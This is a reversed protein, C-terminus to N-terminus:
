RSLKVHTKFRFFLFLLDQKVTHTVNFNQLPAIHFFHLFIYIWRWSFCNALCFFCHYNPPPPPSKLLVSLATLLLCTCVDFALTGFTAFRGKKPHRWMFYCNPVELPLFMSTLSSSLVSGSLSSFVRVALQLLKTNTRITASILSWSNAATPAEM